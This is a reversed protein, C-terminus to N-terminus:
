VENIYQYFLNREPYNEILKLIKSCKIEKKENYEDNHIDECECIGDNWPEQCQECWGSKKAFKMHKRLKIVLPMYSEPIELKTIKSM